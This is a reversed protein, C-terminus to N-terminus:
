KKDGKLGGGLSLINETYTFMLNARERKRKFAGEILEDLMKTFPKDTAEWLYFSLSGPITNIENVYIKGEIYDMLFDIRSVGSCGLVQFTDIAMQRIQGSQELSLDAPLKRKTSSMGKSSGKSNSVYKDNYSLIEDNGVPEECVSAQANIVDGIVSCNIERLNTIAREVIIKMAFKGALEVSEELDARNSAKSIGVSSGLNAPKIIVPYGIKEEISQILTESNKRWDRFYFYQYDVISIGEDKLVKKMIVKDMGIASSMVDCGVYPINYLEFFGQLTGDEVNTGHVIPFAIQIRNVENNGFIKVPPYKMLLIEDGESVPVVRTATIVLKKLDRYNDIDLLADGTYMEGTKAIYVPVVEYKEKDFANIAQLATVISIEHEVSRGGMFVGLKIKM